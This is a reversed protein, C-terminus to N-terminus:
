DWVHRHLRIDNLLGFHFVFAHRYDLMESCRCLPRPVPSTSRGRRLDRRVSPPTWRCCPWPCSGAGATLSMRHIQLWQKRRSCRYKSAPVRHLTFWSFWSVMGWPLYERQYRLRQQQCHLMPIFVIIPIQQQIIPHHYKRFPVKRHQTETLCTGEARKTGWYTTWPPCKWEATVDHITTIQVAIRSGPM